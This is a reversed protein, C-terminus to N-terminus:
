RSCSKAPASHLIVPVSAGACFGDSGCRPDLALADQKALLFINTIGKMCFQEGDALQFSFNKGTPSVLQLAISICNQTLQGANLTTCSPLVFSPGGLWLMDCTTQYPPIGCGLGTTIPGTGQNSGEVFLSANSFAIPEATIGTADLSLEYGSAISGDQQVDAWAYKLKGIDISKTQAFAMGAMLVLLFLLSARATKM